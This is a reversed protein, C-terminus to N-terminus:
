RRGAVALRQEVVAPMEPLEEMVMRRLKAIAKSRQAYVCGVRVRRERAIQRISQGTLLAQMVQREARTLRSLLQMVVRRQEAIGMRDLVTDEFREGVTEHTEELPLITKM